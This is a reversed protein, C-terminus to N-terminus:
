GWGNLLFSPIPVFTANIYHTCYLMDLEIQPQVPVHRKHGVLIKPNVV